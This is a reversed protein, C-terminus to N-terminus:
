LSHFIGTSGANLGFAETAVFAGVSDLTMECDIGSSQREERVAGFSIDAIILPQNRHQNITKVVKTRLGHINRFDRNHKVVSVM